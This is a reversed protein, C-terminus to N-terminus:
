ISTISCLLVRCCVLKMANDAIHSGKPEAVDMAGMYKVYFLSLGHAAAAKQVASSPRDGSGFVKKLSM